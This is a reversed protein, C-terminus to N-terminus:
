TVYTQTVSQMVALIPLWRLQQCLFFILTACSVSRTLLTVIQRLAQLQASASHRVTTGASSNHNLLDMLPLLAFEMDGEGSARNQLYGTGMCLM